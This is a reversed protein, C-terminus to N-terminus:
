TEVRNCDWNAAGDKQFCFGFILYDFWNGGSVELDGHLESTGNNDANYAHLKLTVKSETMLDTTVANDRDLGSNNGKAAVIAAVSALIFSKYM